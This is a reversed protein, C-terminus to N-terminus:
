YGRLGVCDAGLCAITLPRDRLADTVPDVKLVDIEGGSDAKFFKDLGKAGAAVQTM